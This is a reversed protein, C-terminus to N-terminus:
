HHDQRKAPERARMEDILEVIGAAAAALLKEGKEASAKTPDGMVGTQSLASWNEMMVLPGDGAILDTWYNKSPRYSLEHRAKTMDVLQPAIALYASTEFECAHNMGGVRESERLSEAVERVGPAAWYNVAATLASTEVTTLRAIIDVFPTNSGHGNVILIRSFGHHALSRCVDVGYKIFTDAGISIPGPFDMHHPSYGHTIPPVLVSRDGAQSVARETVEGCLRLDTDVPLHLGHDEITAVPVVAVSQAQAAAKIEPWTMEGYRYKAAM